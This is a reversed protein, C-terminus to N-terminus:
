QRRRLISIAKDMRSIEWVTMNRLQPNTNLFWGNTNSIDYLIGAAIKLVQKYADLEDQTAPVFTGIKTLASSVYLIGDTRTM